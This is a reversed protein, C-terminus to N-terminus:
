RRLVSPIRALLRPIDSRAHALADELAAAAQPGHVGRGHGTLLHEPQYGRLVRPPTPRLIPHVGAPGSGVAFLPLTGIAETAILVRREPWWLGLERWGPRWVVRFVAFPSGPVQDPLRMHPVGLRTALAACDRNHRDLLQIVAAPTGLAQAREVAEPVDVPDVLWVRGDDALAHSTRGTTEEITWSFGFGFDDFRANM